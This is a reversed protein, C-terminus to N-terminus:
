CTVFKGNANFYYENADCLEFLAEDSYIYRADDHVASLVAHSLNNNQLGSIVEYDCSAGTLICDDPNLANLADKDYGTFRIYESRDPFASICYDLKGGITGQLAKLSNIVEDVSYDALDHWNDRIWDFVATKDSHSDITYITETIVKEM